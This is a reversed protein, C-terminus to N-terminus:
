CRSMQRVCTVCRWVMCCELFSLLKGCKKHSWHISDLTIMRVMLSYMMRRGLQAKKEVNGTAKLNRGIGLYVTETEQAIPVSDLTVQGMELLKRYISWLIEVFKQTHTLLTVSEERTSGCLM